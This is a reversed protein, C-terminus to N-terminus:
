GASSTRIREITGKGSTLEIFASELDAAKTQRVRVELRVVDSFESSTTEVALRRATKVWTDYLHFGLVLRYAAMLYNKKRGSRDLVDRATDGYARGLGGTGLKTGGFYRTVVVLINTLDRGRLADYIPKGATGTPEGDDSYKFEAKRDLGVHYAYCHHTAAHERRRVADLQTMAADVDPVLFTEGIFRSGKVKIEASAPRAITYYEDDM